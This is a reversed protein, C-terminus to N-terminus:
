GGGSSAEVKDFHDPPEHGTILNWMAVEKQISEIEADDMDSPAIIYDNLFMDSDKYSNGSPGMPIPKRANLKKDHHSYHLLFADRKFDKPLKSGDQPNTPRNNRLHAEVTGCEMFDKEFNNTILHVPHPRKKARDLTIIDQRVMSVSRLRHEVRPSEPVHRQSKQNGIAHMM